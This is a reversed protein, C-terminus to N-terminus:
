PNHQTYRNGLYKAAADFDKQNLVADYLAAVAKKNDEMQKADAALGPRAALLAIAALAAILMHRSM